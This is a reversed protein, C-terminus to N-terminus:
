GHRNKREQNEQEMDKPLDKRDHDSWGRILATKFEPDYDITVRFRKKRDAVGWLCLNENWLKELDDWLQFACGRSDTIGFHEMTEAITSQWQVREDPTLM